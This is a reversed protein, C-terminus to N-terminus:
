CLCFIVVIVNANGLFNVSIDEYLTNIYNAFIKAFFANIGMNRLCNSGNESIIDHTINKNKKFRKTKCHTLPISINKFKIERLLLFLCM